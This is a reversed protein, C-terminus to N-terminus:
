SIIKENKDGRTDNIFEDTFKDLNKFDIKVYKSDKIIKNWEYISAALLNNIYERINQKVIFQLCWFSNKSICPFPEKLESLKNVNNLKYFNYKEIKGIYELKILYKALNFDVIIKEKNIKKSYEELKLNNPYEKRFSFSNNVRILNKNEDMFLADDTLFLHGKEILKIMFSTKGSGSEGLIGIGIGNPNKVAIAHLPLYINSVTLFDIIIRELNNQNGIVFIENEDQKYYIFFDDTIYRFCLYIEKGNTYFNNYINEEKYNKGLIKNLEEYFIHLEYPIFKKMNKCNKLFENRLYGNDELWIDLKVQPLNKNNTICNYNEFNINQSSKINFNYNGINLNYTNIHNQNKFKQVDM